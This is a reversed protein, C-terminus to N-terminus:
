SALDNNIIMVLWIVVHNSRVFANRGNEGGKTFSQGVQRLVAKSFFDRLRSKIM